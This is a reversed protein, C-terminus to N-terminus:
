LELVIKGLKAAPSALPATLGLGFRNTSALFCLHKVAVVGPSM